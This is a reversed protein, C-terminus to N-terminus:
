GILMWSCLTANQSIYYIITKTKEAQKDFHPQTDFARLGINGM